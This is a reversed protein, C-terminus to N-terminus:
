HPPVSVVVAGLWILKLPPVSVDLLLQVIVTVTVPAVAPSLCFVLPATLAVFPPVPVVLLMAVIVTTAGGIIAL